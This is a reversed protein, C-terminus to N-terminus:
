ALLGRKKRWVFKDFRGQNVGELRRKDNKERDIQQKQSVRM